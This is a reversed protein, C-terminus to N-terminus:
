VELQPDTKKTIASVILSLIFGFFLVGVIGFVFMMGPNLFNETMAMAQDIQADAMGQEEMDYRAKEMMTEIFSPDVFTIYIFSFVSSIVGGVLSIWFGVGLGQGFSLFGDGDEKFKKHALFIIVALFIYNIWSAWSEFVLGTLQLVLGYIIMVVGAIVGYQLGVGRTTVQQEM